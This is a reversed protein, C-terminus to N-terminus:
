RNNRVALDSTYSLLPAGTKYRVSLSVRVTVATTFPLATQGAAAPDIRNGFRDFYTFLPTAGNEVNHLLPRGSYVTTAVCSGSVWKYNTRDVRLVGDAKLGYVITSRPCSLSTSSPRAVTFSICSSYGTPFSGAPCSTTGPYTTSIASAGRIDQTMPRLAFVLSKEAQTNLTTRSTQTLMTNLFGYLIASVLGLLLLVVALEVLTVGAESRERRSPSTAIM